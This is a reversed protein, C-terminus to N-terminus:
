MEIPSWKPNTTFTNGKLLFLLRTEGERKWSTYKGEEEWGRELFDCSACASVTHCQWITDMLTASASKGSIALVQEHAHFRGSENM